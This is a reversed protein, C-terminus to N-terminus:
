AGGEANRASAGKGFTSASPGGRRVGQEPEKASQAPVHQQLHEGMRVEQVPEKASVKLTHDGCMYSPVPKLSVALVQAGVPQGQVSEGCFVPSMGQYIQNDPM